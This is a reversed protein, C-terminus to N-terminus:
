EDSGAAPDWVRLPPVTYQERWRRKGNGEGLGSFAERSWCNGKPHSLSLFFPNKRPCSPTGESAFYRGQRKGHPLPSIVFTLGGCTANLSTVPALENKHVSSKECIWRDIIVVGWCVVGGRSHLHHQHPTPSSSPSSFPLLGM